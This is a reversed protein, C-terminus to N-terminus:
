ERAAPTETPQKQEKYSTQLLAFGMGLPYVVVGGGGGNGVDGAFVIARATEEM